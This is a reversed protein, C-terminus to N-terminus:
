ELTIIRTDYDVRVTKFRRIIDQGLVGDAHVQELKLGTLDVFALPINPLTKNDLVLQVPREVNRHDHIMTREAGTDFILTKLQHDVTVNVLLLSRALTFPLNVTDCTGATVTVAFVLPLLTLATKM